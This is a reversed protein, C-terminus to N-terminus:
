FVIACLSRAMRVMNAPRFQSLRERIEASLGEIMDYNISPNITESEDEMFTKLDAEQRALFPEYRAAINKIVYLCYFGHIRIM